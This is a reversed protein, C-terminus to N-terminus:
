FQQRCPVVAVTRVVSYDVSLRYVASQRFKPISTFKLYNRPMSNFADYLTSDVSAMFFKWYKMEVTNVLIREKITNDLFYITPFIFSLVSTQLLGKFSHRINRPKLVCM